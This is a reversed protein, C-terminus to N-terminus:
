GDSYVGYGAWKDIKYPAPPFNYWYSDLGTEIFYVRFINSEPSIEASWNEQKNTDPLYLNMVMGLKEYIVHTECGAGPDCKYLRVYDPQGYKNIILKTPM